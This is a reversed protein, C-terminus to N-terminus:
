FFLSTAVISTAPEEIKLKLIIFTSVVLNKTTKDFPNTM